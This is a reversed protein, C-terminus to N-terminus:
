GVAPRCYARLSYLRQGILEQASHLGVSAHVQDVVVGQRERRGDDGLDQTHRSAIPVLKVAPGIGDEGGLRRGPSFELENRVHHREHTITRLSILTRWAWGRSSKSVGQDLSALGAIAQAIVFQQRHNKQEHNGAMLRRDVQDAVAHHREQVMGSCNSRSRFSGASILGATSSSSRYSEGTCIAVSRYARSSMATAPTVIGLPPRTKATSASPWGRRDAIRDAPDNQVERALGIPMEREAVAHVVADARGQRPQFSLDGKRVRSRRAVFKLSATGGCTGAAAARRSRARGQIM